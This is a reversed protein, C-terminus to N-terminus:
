KAISYTREGDQRKASEVALGMKSGLAGSIFGRVSHAQWGTEKMIEALTAGQKRRLLALVAAKKSGERAATAGQKARAPKKAPSAKKTAAKTKPAVPASQPAVTASLRQV